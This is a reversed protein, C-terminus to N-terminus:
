KVAMFNCLITAADGRTLASAPAMSNDSLTPMVGMYNLASVSAQAWAPIDSSDSFVPKVTPTAADLMSAIVMAAEARSIERDPEFYLKGDKEVGKIYGLDYAASVYGKVHSPITADDAFVTASSNNIQTVGAANMAMVIFESRSVSESPYFYTNGGIQTGSMIGKETMTLAANHYPSDVLDVYEVSTQVKSINLSVTAAPSYNGYMDRAVYTFEDKGTSDEYPIFCYSGTERNKLDLVGKEPYSVIEIYTRDGDPDYCPLTGFYTVNKHTSVELATKPAFSITPAHNQEDLVYLKCSMEYPMDDVRFRFESSNVTDSAPVYTMLAISAASLTQDAGLVTTGVRLQGDSVPPVSTVTIQSIESRNVARAFDSASFSISNGKLTSKAMPSQEALCNLAPSIPLGTEKAKGCSAFSLIAASLLLMTVSATLWRKQRRKKQISKNM